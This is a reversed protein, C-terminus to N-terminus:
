LLNIDAGACWWLRQTVKSINQHEALYDNIEQM